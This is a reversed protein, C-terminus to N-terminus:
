WGSFRPWVATLRASDPGVVGYADHQTATACAHNPLIRVRAGVPLDPLQAGSGPRLCIIGHEQNVATVICDTLVRGREDCALGYGQDVPQDATGRDRSLATWGADVLIQGRQKQHGIVSALVSIAIDDVACVGLGAMVLDFFVFVGARVETVGSLDRAFLAAPTSGVSVVPCPMGASRLMQASGVVASREREAAETLQEEGRCAYSGGSHAMVGRLEAGGEVLAAGIQLLRPDRPPVGARHGDSDIEILAPIRDKLERAAAAVAHAQDVSDLIVSLNVGQRRLAGVRALKGPEIGVAYLIDRSGTAAFQEAEKLTSVTIPGDTGRLMRKVVEVCKATKVHPRLPVGLKRLHRGLREINREMRSEDLLLCPTELENLTCNASPARL